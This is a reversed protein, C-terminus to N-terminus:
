FHAVSGCMRERGGRKQAAEREVIFQLKGPSRFQFVIAQQNPWWPLSHNALFSVSLSTVYSLSACAFIVLKFSIKSEELWPVTLIHAETNVRPVFGLKLKKPVSGGHGHTFAFWYRRYAWCSGNMESNLTNITFNTLHLEQLCKCDLIIQVKLCVFLKSATKRVYRKEDLLVAKANDAVFM